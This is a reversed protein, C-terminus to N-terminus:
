VGLVDEEYIISGCFFYVNKQMGWGQMFYDEGGIGYMSFLWIDDDIFILDDGEGWWIGQYYLVFYNCGIFIGLGIIEFIIYGDGVFNLVQMEFSNIQMVNLVWGNILNECCWYVYFYFFEDLNFFEFQLEYDIYFYQFYM